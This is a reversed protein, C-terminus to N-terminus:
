NKNLSFLINPWLYIFTLRFIQLVVFVQSNKEHENCINIVDFFYVNVAIHM